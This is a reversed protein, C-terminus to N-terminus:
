FMLNEKSKLEEIDVSFAMLVLDIKRIRGLFESIDLDFNDKIILFYDAHKQEPILYGNDSRNSILFCNTNTEEDLSNFIPFYSSNESNKHSIQYDTSEREFSLDIEKNLAWALRYEKYHCAIGILDFDFDYELDLQYKAM